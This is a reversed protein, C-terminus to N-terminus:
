IYQYYRQNDICFPKHSQLATETEAPYNLNIAPRHWPPVPSHKEGTPSWPFNTLAMVDIGGHNDQDGERLSLRVQLEYTGRSFTFAGGHCWAIFRIDIGPDVLDIMRDRAESVDLSAWSSWSGRLSRHRYSYNGGGNQNRFPNLRIWWTYTGGEAIDFRYTATAESDGFHVHWDGEAVGPQGPALLAKGINTSQYWGHRNFSSNTDDEGEIWLAEKTAGTRVMVLVITAVILSRAHM